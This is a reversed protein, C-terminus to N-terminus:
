QFFGQCIMEALRQPVTYDAGNNGVGHAEITGTVLLVTNVKGPVVEKFIRWNYDAINRYPISDKEQCLGLGQFLLISSTIILAPLLYYRKLKLM